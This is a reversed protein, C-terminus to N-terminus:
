FLHMVFRPFSFLIPFHFLGSPSMEGERGKEARLLLLGGEERKRGEAIPRGMAMVQGMECAGAGEGRKWESVSPAWTDDGYDVELCHSYRTM